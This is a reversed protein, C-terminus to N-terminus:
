RSRTATAAASIVEDSPAHGTLHQVITSAADRAISDVNAMARTKMENIQTEAAGLKSNLEAELSQRRAESEVHLKDHTQQALAQARGKADALTKDYAVGAAHAQDQMSRADDLDRAIRTSRAELIGAVRPLAIRSMLWYLAGFIVVLWILQPLFNHADFPPFVNAQQGAEPSNLVGAPLTDSATDSAAM